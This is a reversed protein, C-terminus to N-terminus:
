WIGAFFSSCEKECIKYKLYLRFLLSIGTNCRVYENFSNSFSNNTPKNEGIFHFIVGENILEETLLDTTVNYKQPLTTKKDEFFKNLIIQNGSLNLKDVCYNVLKDKVVKRLYQKGIKLIGANFGNGQSYARMTNPSLLCAGFDCNNSLLESVDGTVLTDSDIYVISNYGELTFIEFRFGPNFLWERNFGRFNCKLYDNELIKKFVFKKNLKKEIQILKYLVKKNNYFIVIDSDLTNNFKLLSYISVMFEKLYLDDLTYVIANTSM